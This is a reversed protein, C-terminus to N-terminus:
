RSGRLLSDSSAIKVGLQDILPVESWKRFDGYGAHRSRLSKEECLGKLKPASIEEPEREVPALLAVEHRLVGVVAM